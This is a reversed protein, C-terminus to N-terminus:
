PVYTAPDNDACGGPYIDYGNSYPWLQLAGALPAPYTVPAPLYATYNVDGPLWQHPLDGHGPGDDDDDGTTTTTTPVHHHHDNHHDHGAAQDHHHGHDHHHDHDTAAAATSTYSIPM